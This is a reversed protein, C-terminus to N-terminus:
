QADSREVWRLFSDRPIRITRGFRHAPFGEIHVMEYMTARSVRAVKAAEDVTLLLPLEESSTIHKTASQEQM